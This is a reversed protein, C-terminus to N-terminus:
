KTPLARQPFLPTPDNQLSPLSCMKCFTLKSCVSQVRVGVPVVILIPMKIRSSKHGGIEGLLACLLPGSGRDETGAPGVVECEFFRWRQCDAATSTLPGGDCCLYLWTRTNRHGGAGCKTGEFMKTALTACCSNEPSKRALRCQEGLCASPGNLRVHDQHLHCSCISSRVYARVSLCVSVCLHYVCVCCSLCPLPLSLSLNLSFSICARACLMCVVLSLFCTAQTLPVIVCHRSSWHIETRVAVTAEGDAVVHAFPAPTAAPPEM